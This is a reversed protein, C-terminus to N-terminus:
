SLDNRIDMLMGGLVNTGDWKHRPCYCQGWILDHWYNGEILQAQGTNLLLKSCIVSSPDFKQLLLERMISVKMQDWNDRLKVNKGQRKAAGASGCAQIIKRVNEDTTKAAQYAHEVSVYTLGEYTVSYPFFNSLFFNPTNPFFRDITGVPFPPKM